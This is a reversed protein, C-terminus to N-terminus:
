LAPSPRACGTGNGAAAQQSQRHIIHCHDGKPDRLLDVVFSPLIEVEALSDLDLWRFEEFSQKMEPSEKEGLWKVSYYTCIEHFPEGDQAFFNESSARVRLVEFNPGIEETLERELADRTNELLKVRGGPLFWWSKAPFRCILVQNENRIIAGVRLNLRVGEIQVTADTNV